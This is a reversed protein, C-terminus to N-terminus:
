EDKALKGEGGIRAMFVEKGTERRWKREVEAAPSPDAANLANSAPSARASGRIAGFAFRAM